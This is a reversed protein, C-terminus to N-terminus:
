KGAGSEVMTKGPPPAQPKKGAQALLAGCPSEKKDGPNVLALLAAFPAAVTGLVVAAGAKMALVGKDVGVDPDKFTGKVYLPSRLSFIRMGKSEPRITLNIQESKFNISGSVGIIADETDVVFARSEMLGNTVGFDAAMCNLQVQRDGFLKAVVVSGVNLGMAELIFKSISGQSILSKVEGNSSALLAAFSNGSASLQADGNVEGISGRMSEVAPFLQKLKLSRASVKMQAKAPSSRGDITLETTLKGGAVGFNLPALSLVGNNMKINTHVNDLPLKESHIVQKGTFQVQVDMKGWRDTKFPSVPLVKGPPQKVEGAKQKTDGADGAGVLKGLDKINLSNSVVTGRLMPRPDGQAYELTGGIDSSGVRGKFNEYRLRISDRGLTGSLRGDTSFKPTEPLLVGSIPFLDAMSAGLIRLKVDLASPHAPDTLTGKATITTEGIKVEAEVPYPVDKAQLSLLAGSKGNGSLKEDNFNGGLKWAMSGDDLTDIRLNIDARKVPDVYRVTGQAIAVDGLEFQWASKKEEKKPFTWNNAGKRDQELNLLPESLVLSQIHITKKLLLLLNVTFDVQQIRAMDPGTKAWDPNGLVVDKARLHPWPVFRRWGKEEAPREWSLSLDGNIAFTRETALSVKEGIWPRARNLDMVSLLALAIAVLAILGVVSGVIIKF